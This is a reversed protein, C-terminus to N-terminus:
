WVHGSALASGLSPARRKSEGGREREALGLGEAKSTPSLSQVIFPGVLVSLTVEFGIKGM